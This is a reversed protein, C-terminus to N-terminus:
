SPTRSGDSEDGRDFRERRHWALRSVEPMSSLAAHVAFAADVTVQKEAAGAFLTRLSRRREVFCLWDPAETEPLEAAAEDGVFEAASPRRGVGLWHAKGGVVFEVCWGWDECYPAEAQHGAERLGVALREAVDDGYNTPNVYTPKPVSTNFGTADFTAHTRPEM